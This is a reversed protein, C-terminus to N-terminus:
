THKIFDKKFNNSRLHWYFATVTSSWLSFVKEFLLLSIHTIHTEGNSDKYWSNCNTNWVTNKLQKKLDAVFKEQAEETPEIAKVKPGLQKICKIANNVQIEAMTVVSNHGLLSAQLNGLFGTVDYGTALVLVDCEFSNGDKTTITRGQTSAIPSREVTINDEALAELYNESPTIRRCGFRYDPTLKEVLDPRGKATLRQKMQRKAQMTVIKGFLSDFFRFNLYFVEQQFFISFRYLKMLFPVWRFLFKVLRSYSYQNRVVCWVPNRQYNMLHKVIPQLKPIMQVASAGSGVVAVRKGTLDISDDWFATHVITGEFASFEKPYRPVRLPGLGAFIVDFHMTRTDAAGNERVTLKWQHQDQLWDARVVETNFLTRDYLGYKRAVGRLYEHIEGQPSYRQSWDPNPEFSLSYLHSAIDCACGPYHNHKWTGGVDDSMEFLTAKIGLQKEVQIAACIGSFGTGIIGVSLSPSM